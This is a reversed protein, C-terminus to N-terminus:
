NCWMLLKSSRELTEEPETTVELNFILASLLHIMKSLFASNKTLAQIKLTSLLWLTVQRVLLLSKDGGMSVETVMTMLQLHEDYDDVTLTREITTIEMILWVDCRFIVLLIVDGPGVKRKGLMFM